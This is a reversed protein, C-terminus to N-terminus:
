YKFYIFNSYIFNGLFINRPNRDVILCGIFFCGVSGYIKDIEINHCLCAIKLDFPSLNDEASHLIRVLTGLVSDGASPIGASLGVSSDLILCFSTSLLGDRHDALM